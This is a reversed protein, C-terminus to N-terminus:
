RSASGIFAVAEDTFVDTLYREVQVEDFGRLVKNPRRTPAPRRGLAGYEVGPLRSDIYTSGGELVGFYEDFGRSMPHHQRQKGLHWKRGGMGTAYGLDKLEDAFTREDTSM